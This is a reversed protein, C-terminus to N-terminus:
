FHKKFTQGSNSTYILCMFQFALLVAKIPNGKQTHKHSHNDLNGKFLWQLMNYKRIVVTDFLLVITIFQQVM